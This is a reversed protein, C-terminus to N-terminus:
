IRSRLAPQSIFLQRAAQSFSSTRAITLVYELDRSDM